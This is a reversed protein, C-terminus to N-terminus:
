GGGTLVFAAWYYPAAYRTNGDEDQYSHLTQQASRLAEVDRMGGARAQFFAAMLIATAEDDVRWLSAVVGPAGAYLFARSLGSFEDGASLAGAGTECASLVVLETRRTLDLSYIEHTELRGDYGDGGALRLASFLPNRENFEGHAAIYLV